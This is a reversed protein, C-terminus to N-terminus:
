FCLINRTTYVCLAYRLAKLHKVRTSTVATEFSDLRDEENLDMLPSIDVDPYEKVCQGSDIPTEVKSRFLLELTKPDISYTGEHLPEYENVTEPENQSTNVPIVESVDISDAPEHKEERETRTDTAVTNSLQRQQTDLFAQKLKREAIDDRGSNCVSSCASGM